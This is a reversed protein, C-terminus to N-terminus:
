QGGHEDAVILELLDMHADIPGCRYGLNLSYVFGQTIQEAVLDLEDSHERIATPISDIHNGIAQHLVLNVLINRFYGSM